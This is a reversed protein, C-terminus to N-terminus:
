ENPRTVNTKDSQIPVFEGVAPVHKARESIDGVKSIEKIIKDGVKKVNSTTKGSTEGSYVYNVLDGLLNANNAIEEPILNQKKAKNVDSIAASLEGDLQGNLDDIDMTVAVQEAKDFLFSLVEIVAMSRSIAVTPNSTNIPGRQNKNVATRLDPQGDRRM